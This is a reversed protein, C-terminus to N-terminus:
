VAKDWRGLVVGVVSLEGVLAAVDDGERGGGVRGEIEDVGGGHGGFGDVEGGAVGVADDDGAGRRVVREVEGVGADGDELGGRGFVGVAIAGEVGVVDRGRAADQRVRADQVVRDAIEVVPDPRTAPPPNERARAIPHVHDTRRITDRQPRNPDPSPRIQRHRHRQPLVLQPM